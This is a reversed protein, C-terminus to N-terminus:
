GMSYEIYGNYRSFPQSGIPVQTIACATQAQVASIESSSLSEDFNLRDFELLLTCVSFQDM